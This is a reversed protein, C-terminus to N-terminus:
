WSVTLIPSKRFLLCCLIVEGGDDVIPEVKLVGKAATWMDTYMDPIIALVQHFRHDVYRVHVQASLDAAESWAPLPDGIYLGALGKDQIVLCFALKPQEIMVAAKEIVQRTVVSKQGIVKLNTELAGLWHILDIMKTGSVGPFLYKNGGSFGAAEHPFVPGCIIIQDYKLLKKNIEIPVDITIRDGTITAVEAAKLIGINTLSNPDECQHQFVQMKPYLRERVSESIGLLHAIERNNMPPHTGLAVLYDLVAVQDLLAQNILRFFLSIPATRTGDPIIVLVRKRDLKAADLAQSVLSFVAAEDLPKDVAGQGIIVQGQSAQPAFDMEAQMTAM